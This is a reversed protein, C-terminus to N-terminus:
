KTKTTTWNIKKKEYMSNQNPIKSATQTLFKNNKNYRKDHPQNTKTKKNKNATLLNDRNKENQRNTATNPYLLFTMPLMKISMQVLPKHVFQKEATQIKEVVVLRQNTTRVAATQLTATQLTATQNLLPKNM